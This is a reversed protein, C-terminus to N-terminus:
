TPGPAYPGGQARAGHPAGWGGVGGGGGGWGPGEEEEEEGGAPQRGLVLRAHLGRLPVVGRQDRPEPPLDAAGRAGRRRGRGVDVGGVCRVVRGARGLCVHAPGVGAPQRRRRGLRAHLHGIREVVRRQRRHRARRRGHADAPRARAHGVGPDHPRCQLQCVRDGGHAVVARGGRQRRAGRARRGGGLARGGAAPRTGNGPGPPLLPPYTPGPAVVAPLPQARRGPPPPALARSCWALASADPISARWARGVGAAGRRGVCLM